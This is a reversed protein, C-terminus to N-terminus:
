RGLSDRFGKNITVEDTLSSASVPKRNVSNDPRNGLGKVNVEDTVSSSGHIPKRNMVNESDGHVANTENSSSKLDGLPPM